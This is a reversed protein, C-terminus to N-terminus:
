PEIMPQYSNGGASEGFLTMRKPDGGFKEINDRLWEVALRQDLLGLNYDELGPAGPFGFVNLRYSIGTLLCFNRLFRSTNV